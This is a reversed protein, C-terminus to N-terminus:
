RTQAALLDVVDKATTLDEGTANVYHKYADIRRGEKFLGVVIKKLPPSINAVLAKVREARKAREVEAAQAAVVTEPKPCATVEYWQKTDYVVQLVLGASRYPGTEFDIELLHTPRIPYDFRDAFPAPRDPSLPTIKWKYGAPIAYAAQRTEMWRYASGSEASVCALSKPHLLTKRREPNKSNIAAVLDSVFGSAQAEEQARVYGSTAVLLLACVFQVCVRM